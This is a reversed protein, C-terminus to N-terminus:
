EPFRFVQPHETKGKERTPDYLYVAAAASECFATSCSGNGEAGEGTFICHRVARLSGPM